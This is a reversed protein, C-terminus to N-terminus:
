LALPPRDLDAPLVGPIWYQPVAIATAPAAEPLAIAATPAIAATACCSACPPCHAKGAHHNESPAQDHDHPEGASHHHHAAASHSQQGDHGGMAMCLGAKVAALGQIPVAIALLAAALIRLLTRPM